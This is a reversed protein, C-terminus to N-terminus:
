LSETLLFWASKSQLDIRYTTGKPVAIYVDKRFPLAGYESHLVGEGQQVFYIEHFDANRFFEEKPSSKVPKVISMITRPGFVIPKRARLPDGGAPIDKTLIHYPQLVDAEKPSELLFDFNAKVPAKVQETPYSRVHLKRSWPGSFGYTGHIEELALVKPIFYFETHPTAPLKGQKLIM